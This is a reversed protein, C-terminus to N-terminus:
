KLSKIYEVLARLNATQRIEPLNGAIAAAMVGKSYGAVTKADPNTISETIYAENALATTGNDLRERKNGLGLLGPGTGPAASTM